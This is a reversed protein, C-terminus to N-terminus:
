EGVVDFFYGNMFSVTENIDIIKEYIEPSQNLMAPGLESDYISQLLDDIDENLVSAKNYKAHVFFAGFNYSAFIMFILIVSILLFKNKNSTM